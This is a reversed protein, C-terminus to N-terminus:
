CLLHSLVYLTQSIPYQLKSLGGKRRKAKANLGAKRVGCKCGLSYHIIEIQTLPRTESVVLVTLM